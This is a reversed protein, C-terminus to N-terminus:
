LKNLKLARARETLVQEVREIADDVRKKRQRKRLSVERTGSEWAAWECDGFFNNASGSGTGGRGPLKCRKGIGPEGLFNDLTDRIDASLILRVVCNEADEEKEDRQRIEVPTEVRSAAFFPANACSSGLPKPTITRLRVVESLRLSSNLDCYAMQRLSGSRRSSTERLMKVAVLRVSSFRKRLRIVKVAETEGM